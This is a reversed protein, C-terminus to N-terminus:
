RSTSQSPHPSPTPTIPPREAGRFLEAEAKRRRVLGEVVEGAAHDWLGFQAAAGTFDGINV